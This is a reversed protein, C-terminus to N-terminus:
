PGEGPALRQLDELGPLLSLDPIVAVQIRRNRARGEPTANDAVPRTAGYSAAAIRDEPMGAAVMERLVVLARDAALSWNDPYRATAIPVDDTHGEVEFRRDPISALKRAVERVTRRGEPGLAASGSAFLVDTPLEVVLRGDVLRLRLDGADILGRLRDQLERFTAVRARVAAERASLEDLARQLREVTAELAGCDRTAVAEARHAESLRGQLLALQDALLRNGFRLEEVQRELDLVLRNREELQRELAAREVAEARALQETTELLERHRSLPVCGGLVLAVLLTTM